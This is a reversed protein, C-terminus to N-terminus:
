SGIIEQVGNPIFGMSGRKFRVTMSHAELNISHSVRYFFINDTPNRPVRPGSSGSPRSTMHWIGQAALDPNKQVWTRWKEQVGAGVQVIDPIPDLAIVGILPSTYPRSAFSAHRKCYEASASALVLVLRSELTDINDCKATFSVFRFSSAEFDKGSQVHNCVDLAFPLHIKIATLVPAEQNKLLSLIEIPDAFIRDLEETRESPDARHLFV